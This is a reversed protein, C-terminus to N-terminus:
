PRRAGATTVPGVPVARGGATRRVDGLWDELAARRLRGHCVRVGARHLAAADSESVNHGHALVPCRVSGAVAQRVWDAQVDPPLFDLDLIVAAAGAPPGASPLCAPYAVRAGTRAAWRRVLDRNVDDLTLYAIRM